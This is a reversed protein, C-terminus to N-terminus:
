NPKQNLSSNIPSLNLHGDKQCAAGGQGTTAAADHKAAVGGCFRGLGVGLGIVRKPDTATETSAGFGGSGVRCLGGRPCIAHQGLGLVPRGSDTLIPKDWAMFRHLGGHKAIVDLGPRLWLHFTNGLIIQAKAEELDRPTMAKVTGYTGVPMFIPTQVSGHPLDLRGLRALSQSDRKILEFQIPSTM